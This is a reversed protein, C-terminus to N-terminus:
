QMGNAMQQLEPNAGMALEPPMGARTNKLTEATALMAEDPTAGAQTMDSYQYLVQAVDELASSQREVGMRELMYEKYPLDQLMLWEEETIWNIGQSGDKRYQSQAKLLETAMAAIRQRNKPLASSIAIRYNFLTKATIAKPFDVEVTEWETTNPKKRFFARKPCYEILNTLILMTLQKCYDEYLMIKPTDIMTVRGLMEETGGTTIISGTDRGTYRGDVGSVNQIGYELSQKVASMFPSIQPFQQYHVARTADDAVVFTRDAEDGYKSFAQVNLKSRDSIFKPPHQNKYEATLVMSDLLNYAANNAFIKSPESAGILAGAPLNCYLLAFPYANPKIDKRTYLIEEVNLTHIEDIGSETRVWFVALTYYDKASSKSIADPGWMDPADTTSGDQHKEQYKKFAEKYNANNEFVSKHYHEYTMCWGSEKLSVAYPDRMFKIPDINKFRVNGKSVIEDGVGEVIDEDWGVQTIGLNCLAAREGAQFQYMGVNQTDWLCDMIVNLNICLDKDEESTPIIDACKAVSYVSAVLNSKVYSIFNTDPLIQYKPYQAGIAKWLEGRDTMDLARMKKFDKAYHQRGLDWYDKLLMLRKKEAVQEKIEKDTM